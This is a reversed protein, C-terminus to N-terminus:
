CAELETDTRVKNRTHNPKMDPMRHLIDKMMSDDFDEHFYRVGEKPQPPGIQFKREIDVYLENDSNM